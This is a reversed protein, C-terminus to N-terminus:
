MLRMLGVNWDVPIIGDPHNYMFYAGSLLSKVGQWKIFM